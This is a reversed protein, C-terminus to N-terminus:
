LLISPLDVTEGGNIRGLVAECVVRERVVERVAEVRDTADVGEEDVLCTAAKEIDSRRLRPGWISEKYADVLRVEELRSNVAVIHLLLNLM